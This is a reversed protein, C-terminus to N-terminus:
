KCQMQIHRPILVHSVISSNMHEYSEYIKHHNRLNQSIIFASCVDWDRLYIRRLCIM